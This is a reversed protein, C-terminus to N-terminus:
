RPGKRNKGGVKKETVPPSEAAVVAPKAPEVQGGAAAAEDKVEVVGVPVAPEEASPAEGGADRKGASARHEDFPALAQLVARKVTEQESDLYLAVLQSAYKVMAKQLARIDPLLPAPDTTPRSETTGIAKGYLEHTRRIEALFSAGILANWEAELAPEENFRKVRKDTEVWQTDFEGTTFDIGTPFFIDILTKARAVEPYRDAPLELWSTARRHSGRWASDALLDIPKAPPRKTVKDRAAWKRELSGLSTKLLAQARRMAALEPPDKKGKAPAPLANQLLKHGLAIGGAADIVPARAYVSFDPDTLDM